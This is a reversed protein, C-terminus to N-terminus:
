SIPWKRILRKELKRISPPKSPPQLSREPQTVARGGREGRRRGAEPMRKEDPVRDLRGRRCPIEERLCVQSKVGM